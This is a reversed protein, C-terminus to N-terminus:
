GARNKSWGVSPRNLALWYNALQAILESFQVFDVPKRLYSNAGLDYSEVLDREEDSSTLIVIQLQRASRQDRFHRLLEIGGMKPMDLDLLVLYVRGPVAGASADPGFFQLAEVGDELIVVQNTVGARKLARTALEQDDENDDILVIIIDADMAPKQIM